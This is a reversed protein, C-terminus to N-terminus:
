LWDRTLTMGAILYLYAAFFITPILLLHAIHRGKYNKFAYVMGIIGLIYIFLFINTLIDGSDTPIYKGDSWDGKVYYSSAILAYIEAIVFISPPSCILLKSIITKNKSLVFYCISCSLLVIISLMAQSLASVQYENLM